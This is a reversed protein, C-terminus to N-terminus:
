TLPAIRASVRFFRCVVMGLETYLRTQLTQASQLSFSFSYIVKPLSSLLIQDPLHTTDVANRTNQVVGSESSSNLTAITVESEINNTSSLLASYMHRKGPLNRPVQSPPPSLKCCRPALLLERGIKLGERKRGGTIRHM